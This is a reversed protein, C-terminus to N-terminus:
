KKLFKKSGTAGSNDTVKVIYTGNPLNSTDISKVNSLVIIKQGLINYVEVQAVENSINLVNQVPNPYINLDLSEINPVRTSLSPYSFNSEVNDIAVVDTNSAGEKIKIRVQIKNFAGLANVKNFEIQEWTDAATVNTTGSSLSGIVNDEADFIKFVAQYKVATNSTKADFTVTINDPSVPMGFDHIANDFYTVATQDISFTLAGAQSSGNGTVVGISSETTVDHSWNDLTGTEFDGNSVYGNETTAASFVVNDVYFIKNATKVIIRVSLNGVEVGTLTTSGKEWDTSSLTHTLGSKSGQTSHWTQVQIKSKDEGKVDFRVIYDGVESIAFSAAKAGSNTADLKPTIKISGSSVSNDADDSAWEITANQQASWGSLDTDFTGNSIQAMGIFPLIALLLFTIKKMIFYKLKITNM